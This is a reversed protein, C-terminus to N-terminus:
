AAIGVRALISAPVPVGHARALNAFAIVKAVPVGRKRWAYLHQHSLNFHARVTERGIAEILAADDSPGTNHEM